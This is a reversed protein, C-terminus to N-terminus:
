TQLRHDVQLVLSLFDQYSYFVEHWSTVEVCWLYIYKKKQSNLVQVNNLTLIANNANSSMEFNCYRTFFPRPVNTHENKPM